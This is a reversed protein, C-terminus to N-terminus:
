HSESPPVDGLDVLFKEVSLGAILGQASAVTPLQPKGCIIDGCAFVGKVSTMMDEDIMVVGKDSMEVAGKLYGSTTQWDATLPFVGQTQIEKETGASLITVSAIRDTGNIQKLSSSFHLEIHKDQLHKLLAEPVDLKSSPVILHIKEAFRTLALAEKCAEQTKGIVVAGGGRVAWGDLLADYFVGAGRFEREGPVPHPRFAAGTALVIARATFSAGSQATVTLPSGSFNVSEVSTEQVEGGVSTVQQQLREILKAGSIGDPFGPFTQVRASGGTFGEATGKDIVLTSRGCRALFGAASCGAPGGGLIIVDHM